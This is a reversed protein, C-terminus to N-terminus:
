PNTNESYLTPNGTKAVDFFLFLRQRPFIGAKIELLAYFVYFLGLSFARGQIM